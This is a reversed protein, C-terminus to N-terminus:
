IEAVKAKFAERDAKLGNLDGMERWGLAIIQEKLFLDDAEGYKGAHIGWITKETM